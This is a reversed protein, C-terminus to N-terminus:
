HRGPSPWQTELFDRLHSAAPFVGSDSIEFVVVSMDASYSTAMRHAISRFEPLSGELGDLLITAARRTSQCQCVHSQINSAM